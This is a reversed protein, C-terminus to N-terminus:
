RNGPRAFCGLYVYDQQPMSDQLLRFTIDDQVALVNRTLECGPPGPADEFPRAWTPM